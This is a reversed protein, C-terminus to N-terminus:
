QQRNGETVVPIEQAGASGWAAAFPVGVVMMAARLQMRTGM